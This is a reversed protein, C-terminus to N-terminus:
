LNNFWFKPMNAIANISAHTYKNTSGHNIHIHSFPQIDPKAMQASIQSNSHNLLRSYINRIFINQCSLPNLLDKPVSIWKTFLGSLGRGFFLCIITIFYDKYWYWSMFSKVVRDMLIKGEPRSKLHNNYSL